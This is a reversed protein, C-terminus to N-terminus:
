FMNLLWLAFDDRLPNLMTHIAIMQKDCERFVNCFRYKQLIPDKTYPMALGSTKKQWISLREHVFDCIEKVIPVDALDSNQAVSSAGVHCPWHRYLDRIHKPLEM